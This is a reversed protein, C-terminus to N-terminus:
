DQFRGSLVLLVELNRRAKDVDIPYKSKAFLAFCESADLSDAGLRIERCKFLQRLLCRLSDIVRLRCLKPHLSQDLYLCETESFSSYFLHM